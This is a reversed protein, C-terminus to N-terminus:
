RQWQPSSWGRAVFPVEKEALVLQRSQLYKTGVITQYVLATLQNRSGLNEAPCGRLNALFTPWFCLHRM